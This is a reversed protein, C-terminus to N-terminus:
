IEPVGDDEDEIPELVIHYFRSGATLVRVRGRRPSFGEANVEIVYEGPGLGGLRFRGNENTQAAIDPHPPGEVVYVTADAIPDGDTTEVVGRLIGM